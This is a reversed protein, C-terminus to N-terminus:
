IQGYHCISIVKAMFVVAHYLFLKVINM